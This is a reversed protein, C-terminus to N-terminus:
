LLEAYEDLAPTVVENTFASIKDAKGQGAPMMLIERCCPDDVSIRLNLADRWFNNTRRKIDDVSRSSINYRKLIEARDELM